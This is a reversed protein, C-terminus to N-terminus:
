FRQRCSLRQLVQRSKLKLKKKEERGSIVITVYKESAKWDKISGHAYTEFKQARLTILALEDNFDVYWLTAM